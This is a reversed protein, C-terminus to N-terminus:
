LNIKVWLCFQFFELKDFKDKNFKKPDKGSWGYIGCFLMNHKKPKTLLWQLCKVFLLFLIIKVEM